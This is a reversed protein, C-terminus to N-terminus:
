RQQDLRRLIGPIPAGRSRWCGAIMAPVAVSTQLTSTTVAAAEVVAPLNPRDASV